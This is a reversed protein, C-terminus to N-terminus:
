LLEPALQCDTTQSIARILTQKSQAQFAKLPTTVFSTPSTKQKGDVPTSPNATISGVCPHHQARSLCPLTPEHYSGVDMVDLGNHGCLGGEADSLQMSVVVAGM